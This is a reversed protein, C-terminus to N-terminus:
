LILANILESMVQLLVVFLRSSFMQSHGLIRTEAMTKLNDFMIFVDKLYPAMKHFLHHTFMIALRTM